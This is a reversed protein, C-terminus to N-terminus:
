LKIFAKILYIFVIIMIIGDIFQNIFVYIRFFLANEKTIITGVRTIMFGNSFYNYINQIRCIIFLIFTFFLFVSFIILFIKKSEIKVLFELVIFVLALPYLLLYSAMPAYPHIIGKPYKNGWITKKRKEKYGIKGNCKDCSIFIVEDYKDEEKKVNINGCFVCKDM